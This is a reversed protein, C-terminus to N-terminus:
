FDNIEEKHHEFNSKTLHDNLLHRFSIGNIKLEFEKENEVINFLQDDITFTHNYKNREMRIPNVEHFIAGNISLKSKGSLISADLIM